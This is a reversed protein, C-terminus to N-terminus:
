SLNTWVGQNASSALCAEVFAMSHVGDHITPFTTDTIPRDARRATIALATERYINAFAELMGEPHGRPTRALGLIEPPLGPDSRGILHTGGGELQLRLYSANQHSWEILGREGYIRLRIDNEGGAAAQTVLFQGRAGGTFRLNALMTDIVERNPVIAGADASVAAVTLGAVSCALHQAHCGIASFVLALGSRSADFRWRDRDTMADPQVPIATGNQIYEVQLMRVSGIAGTAILHRAHRTMPYASFAHTVAVIRDNARSRAALDRAEAATTSVPKDLMVDLGADLAAAVAPYHTDNPGMVAVADIGDARSKETALMTAVDAYGRGADLGMAIAAERSRDAHSSFVGGVVQWLGDLEAARRHMGGIWSTQGGGVFAIRLPQRTETPLSMETEM